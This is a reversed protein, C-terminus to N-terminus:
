GELAAKKARSVNPAARAIKGSESLAHRIQAPEFPAVVRDIGAKGVVHGLLDFTDAAKAM